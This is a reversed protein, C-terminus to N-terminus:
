LGCGSNSFARKTSSIRPPMRPSELRAQDQEAEDDDEVREEPGGADRGVGVLEREQAVDAVASSPLWITM